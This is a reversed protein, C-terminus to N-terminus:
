YHDRQVVHDDVMELFARIARSPEAHRYRAVALAWTAAPPDLDVAVVDLADETALPPVLAIGIGAEVFSPIAGLESVEVAVNRIVGARLFDSDSRVRNCFGSPLDIFAEHALEAPDVTGRGALPHRAPLLLRPQFTILPDLHLDPVTTTQVGVFAVDLTRDRLRAMLGESGEADVALTLSVKPHRERFSSVLGRLDIATLGALTGIRVTGAVGERVDGVAARATELAELARRAEPLLTRGADTLEVRTTSREFLRIGLSRELTKVSASVTSQVAQTRRAARTFSLEEAVAVFFELQRQEM